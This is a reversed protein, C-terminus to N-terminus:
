SIGQKAKKLLEQYDHKQKLHRKFFSIEVYGATNCEKCDRFLSKFFAGSMIGYDGFIKQHSYSYWKGLIRGQTRNIPTFGSKISEQSNQSKSSEKFIESM